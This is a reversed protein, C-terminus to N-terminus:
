LRPLDKEQLILLEEITSFDVNSKMEIHMFLSQSPSSVTTVTGIVLGSPYIQSYGSTIVRDGPKVDSRQHVGELLFLNGHLWRVIGLVRSRQIKASIRSNPDTLLQGISTSANVAILKGVVGKDSMIVLNKKCGEKWGVNLHISGPLGVSGRGIIEAPIFDYNVNDKFGLLRRLRQNELMAEQVRQNLLTYEGVLQKLKQNEKQLSFVRPSGTVAEQLSGTVTSAWLKMRIFLPQQDLAMFLFSVLIAGVLVLRNKFQNFIHNVKKAM